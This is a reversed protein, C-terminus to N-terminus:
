VRFYLNIQILLENKVKVRTYQTHHTQITWIYKCLTLKELKSYTSAINKGIHKAIMMFESYSQLQTAKRPDRINVARSINRGQMSRIANVFEGTRERSAMIVIESASNKDCDDYEDDDDATAANFSGGFQTRQNSQSGGSDGFSLLQDANAATANAVQTVQQHLFTGISSSLKTLGTPVSFGSVSYGSGLFNQGIATTAYKKKEDGSYPSSDILKKASQSESGSNVVAGSDGDILVSFNEDSESGLFRRRAPM